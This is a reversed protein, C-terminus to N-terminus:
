NNDLAFDVVLFAFLFGCLLATTSAARLVARLLVYIVRQNLSKRRTMYKGATFACLQPFSGILM